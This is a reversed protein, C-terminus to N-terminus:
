EGDRIMEPFICASIDLLFQNEELAKSLKRSKPSAPDLIDEDPIESLNVLTPEMDYSMEGVDKAYDNFKDIAQEANGAIVYGPRLVPLFKYIQSKGSKLEAGVEIELRRIQEAAETKNNTLADM